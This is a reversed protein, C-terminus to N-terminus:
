PRTKTLPLYGAERFIARARRKLRRRLSALDRTGLGLKRQIAEGRHRFGIQDVLREFLPDGGTVQGLLCEFFAREDRRDLTQAPDVISRTDPVQETM